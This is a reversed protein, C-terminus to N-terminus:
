LVLDKLKKLPTARIKKSRPVDKIIWENPEGAKVGPNRFKKGKQAETIKLKLKLLDPIVFEKPGRSGLERKIIENLATFVSTVERKTLGTQEALENIIAAKTMRKPKAAAM